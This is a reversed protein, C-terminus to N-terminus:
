HGAPAAGAKCGTGAGTAEIGLEHMV